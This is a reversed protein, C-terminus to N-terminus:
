KMCQLAEPFERVRLDEAWEDMNKSIKGNVPIQKVHVAVSAAKCQEVLFRAWEIQMPRAGPGTEGGCIVWDLHQMETGREIAYLVNKGITGDPREGTGVRFLDVAGLMPEVSVFRKAAPTQLLLPIREDAAAQNEVTCGLWVNPLPISFADEELMNENDPYFGHTASIFAEISKRFRKGKNWIWDGDLMTGAACGWREALNCACEDVADVESFYERMREPRKTLVQFRHQPCLAMVAFVKDIFEDPVDKHFLDGGLAVAIRRPTRMHLPIELREPLLQIESFPKAYQPAVKKGNLFAKHRMTHLSEAWCNQCGPSCKTCGVLPHWTESTWSIGGERQNTMKSEGAM